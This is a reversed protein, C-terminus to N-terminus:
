RETTTPKKYNKKREESIVGKKSITTGSTKGSKEPKWLYINVLDDNDTFDDYDLSQFIM